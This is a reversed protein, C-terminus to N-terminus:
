SDFATCITGEFINDSFMIWHIHQWCLMLSWCTFHNVLSQGDWYFSTRSLFRPRQCQFTCIFTVFSSLTVGPRWIRWTDIQNLMRPFALFEIWPPGLSIQNDSVWWLMSLHGRSTDQSTQCWSKPLLVNSDQPNPLQVRWPARISPQVPDEPIQLRPPSRSSKTINIQGYGVEKWGFCVLHKNKAPALALNSNTWGTFRRLIHSSSDNDHWLKLGSCAYHFDWIGGWSRIRQRLGPYHQQLKPKALDPVLLFCFIFISIVSSELLTKGILGVLIHNNIDSDSMEGYWFLRTLQLKLHMESLLSPRASHPMQTWETHPKWDWSSLSLDELTVVPLGKPKINALDILSNSDRIAHAAAGTIQIQWKNNESVSSKGKHKSLGDSSVECRLKGVAERSHTTRGAKHREQGRKERDRGM